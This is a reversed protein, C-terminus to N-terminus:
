PEVGVAMASAQGVSVELTVLGAQATLSHSFRTSSPLDFDKAILDLSTQIPVASVSYARLANRAMSEACLQELQISSLQLMLPLLPLQLLLGFGIFELPASGCEDSFRRLHM